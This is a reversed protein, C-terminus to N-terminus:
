TLPEIRLPEIEHFKRYDIARRGDETQTIIDALRMDWFLESPIYSHRAHITQSFTGDTGTMTVLLEAESDALDQPTMGYLPSDPDIPHLATWTLAFISTRSRELKLDFFRRMFEGEATVVNQIISLHMEAELIQNSRQNAARFMLTPMGNYPAIVAAQSFIVRATPRSFRAFMLGTAMTLWFLGLMSEITVILNAYLTHPYMAGYGISAMTQVSFFFADGFSGPHANVIGDGGALFALAFLTNLAIYSLGLLGILRSWSLTLLLHYLDGWHNKPNGIQVINSSGKLNVYRSPKIPKVSVKRDNHPKRASLPSRKPMPFAPL